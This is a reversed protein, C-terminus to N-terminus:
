RRKKWTFLGWIVLLVVVVGVVIALPNGGSANEVASPSIAAPPTNTSSPSGSAISSLPVATRAPQQATTTTLVPMPVAKEVADMRILWAPAAVRSSWEKPVLGKSIAWRQWEMLYASHSMQPSQPPPAEPLKMRTLTDLAEFLNSDGMLDGRQPTITKFDFLYPAVVAAAEPTGIAALLEFDSEPVGGEATTKAMDQRIYDAYGQVQGLAESAAKRQQETSLPRMWFELYPVAIPAPLTSAEKLANYDGGRVRNTINDLREDERGLVTDPSQAILAINFLIICGCILHTKM